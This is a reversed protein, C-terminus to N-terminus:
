PRDRARGTPLCCAAESPARPGSARVHRGSLLTHAARPERTTAESKAATTAPEARRFVVRPQKIRAPDELSLRGAGGVRCLRRGRDAALGLHAGYARPLLWFFRVSVEALRPKVSTAELTGAEHRSASDVLMWSANGIRRVEKCQLVVMFVAMRASQAELALANTLMGFSWLRLVTTRASSSSASAAGEGAGAGARGGADVAVCFCWGVGAGGWM